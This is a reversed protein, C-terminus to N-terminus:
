TTLSMNLRKKKTTQLLTDNINSNSTLTNSKRKASSLTGAFM